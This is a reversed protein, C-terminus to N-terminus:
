RLVSRPTLVEDYVLDAYGDYGSEDSIELGIWYGKPCGLKLYKRFVESKYESSYISSGKDSIVTYRINALEPNPKIM